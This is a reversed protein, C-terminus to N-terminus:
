RARLKTAAEETCTAGMDSLILADMLSDYFDEDVVRHENVADDVM